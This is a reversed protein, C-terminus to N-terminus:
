LYTLNHDDGNLATSQIHAWHGRSKVPGSCRPGKQNEELVAKGKFLRLSVNQKSLIHVNTCQSVDCPLPIHRCTDTPLFFKHIPVRKPPQFRFHYLHSKREGKEPWSIVCVMLKIVPCSGKKISIVIGCYLCKQSTSFLYQQSTNHCQHLVLRKSNLINNTVAGQSMM